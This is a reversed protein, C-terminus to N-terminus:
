TNRIFLPGLVFQLATLFCQTVFTFSLMTTCELVIHMYQLRQLILHHVRSFYIPNFHNIFLMWLRHNGKKNNLVHTFDYVCM